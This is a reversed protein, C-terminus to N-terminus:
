RQINVACIVPLIIEQLLNNKNPGRFFMGESVLFQRVYFTVIGRLSDTGFVGIHNMNKEGIGSLLAGRGAFVGYGSKTNCSTFTRLWHKSGQQRRSYDPNADFFWDLFM